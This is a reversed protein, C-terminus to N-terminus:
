CMPGDQHNKLATIRNNFKMEMPMLILILLGSTVFFHFSRDFSIGMLSIVLGLLAISEALALFLLDISRWRALIRQLDFEKGVIRPSFYIFRRISLIMIIFLVALANFIFYLTKLLSLSINLQPKLFYALAAYIVVTALLALAIVFTQRIANRVESQEETSLNFQFNNM